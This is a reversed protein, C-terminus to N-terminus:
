QSERERVAASGIEAADPVEVLVTRVDAVGARDPGGQTDAGLEHRREASDPHLQGFGEDLLIEVLRLQETEAEAGAESSAAMGARGAIAAARSISAATGTSRVLTTCPCRTYPRTPRPPRRRMFLFSSVM